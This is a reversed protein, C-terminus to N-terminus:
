TNKDGPNPSSSTWYVVGVILAVPSLGLLVLGVAFFIANGGVSGHRDFAEAILSLGSYGGLLAAGSLVLVIFGRFVRSRSVSAM